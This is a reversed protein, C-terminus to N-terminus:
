PQRNTSPMPFSDIVLVILLVLVLVLVLVLIPAM